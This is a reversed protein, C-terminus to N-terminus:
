SAYFISLVGNLLTQTWQFRFVFDFCKNDHTSSYKVAKNNCNCLCFFLTRCFLLIQPYNRNANELSALSFEEPLLMESAFPRNKSIARSIFPRRFMSQSYFTAWSRSVWPVRPSYLWSRPPMALNKIFACGDRNVTRFNVAPGPIYNSPTRIVHPITWTFDVSLEDKKWSNKM